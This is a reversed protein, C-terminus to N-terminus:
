GKALSTSGIVKHTSVQRAHARFAGFLMVCVAYAIVVGVALSALVAYILVISTSM